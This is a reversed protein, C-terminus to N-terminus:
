RIKRLERQIDEDTVDRRFFVDWGALVLGMGWAALIWGPWFYGSGTLAWIGVIFAGNIVVYAVVDSRFRHWRTM